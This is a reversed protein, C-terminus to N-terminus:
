FKWGVGMIYRLDDKVNGSAPTSNHTLEVKAEIFFSQTMDARV